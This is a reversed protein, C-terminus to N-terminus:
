HETTIVHLPPRPTRYYAIPLWAAGGSYWIRHGLLCRAMRHLAAFGERTAPASVHLKEDEWKDPDGGDNNWGDRASYFDIELTLTKAKIGERSFFAWPVCQARKYDFSFRDGSLGYGRRTRKDRPGRRELTFAGM